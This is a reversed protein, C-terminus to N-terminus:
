SRARSGTGPATKSSSSRSSFNRTNGPSRIGSKLATGCRLRGALHALITRPASHRRRCQAYPSRRHNRLRPLFYQLSFNVKVLDKVAKLFVQANAIFRDGYIPRLQNIFNRLLKNKIMHEPVEMWNEEIMQKLKRAYIRCFEVLTDDAVVRSAAQQRREEMSDEIVTDLFEFLQGSRYKFTHKLMSRLVSANEGINESKFHLLLQVKRNFGHSYCDVEVGSYGNLSLMENHQTPIILEENKNPYMNAVREMIMDMPVFEPHWHVALVETQRPYVKDPVRVWEQQTPSLETSIVEFFRQQDEETVERPITDLSVTQHQETTEFKVLEITNKSM